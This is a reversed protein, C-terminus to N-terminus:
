DQAKVRAEVADLLMEDTLRAVLIGPCHNTVYVSNIAILRGKLDAIQDERNSGSMRALPMGVIAVAWADSRRAIRQDHEEARLRTTSTDYLSSLQNCSGNEYGVVSVPKAEIRTPNPCCGVVSVCTFLLLALKTKV